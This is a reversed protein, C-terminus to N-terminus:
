LPGRRTTGATGIALSLGTVFLMAGLSGSPFLGILIFAMGLMM